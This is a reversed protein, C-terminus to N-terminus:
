GRLHSARVLAALTALDPVELDPTASSNPTAGTGSKGQRRNVWVTALGAERAPGVDHFLSQAVHLLEEKPVGANEILYDFNGPDPKYSGIVQATFVHDIPVGLSRASGAFLDNDVNSLIALQGFEALALLGARTDAFAPWDSVSAAFRACENANPRFGLTRGMEQLTRSLVERYCLFGEGQGSEQVGHEASGFASLLAEPSWALGNDACIPTLAEVLGAEWDILTGYCDFSFMRFRSLDIKAM